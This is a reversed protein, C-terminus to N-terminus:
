HLMFTCEPDGTSQQPLRLCEATRVPFREGDGDASLYDITITQGDVYGLDRLAEFFADFRPSRSRLTGPDFTLFCLRPIKQPQQADGVVPAAFLTLMALLAVGLMKAPRQARGTLPWGVAAGTLLTIFAHRQM